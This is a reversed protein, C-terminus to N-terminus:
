SGTKTLGEVESSLQSVLEKDKARLLIRRTREFEPLDKDEDEVLNLKGAVLARQSATLKFFRISLDRLRDMADESDIGAPTESSTPEGGFLLATDAPKQWPPLEIEQEFVDKTNLDHKAIFQGPRSQWIRVHVRVRLKPAENTGLKQLEILNYGPEWGHETRDPHAASAAVRVFDRHLEIRNTHVHGFVQLKSVTALHDAFVDGNALWSYPHHCLVVNISGPISCIQKSAVDVYLGREQDNEGSVITSNVGLFRVSWGDEFPVSRECITQDPPLLSCFFQGAFENYPEISKYLAPGATEDKLLGSIISDVSLASAAKIDRHLTQIIPSQRIRSRVVDHNGPITFVQALTSGCRQCLGDLWKMAFKYEVEAGAFAIDGSVVIMDPAQKLRQCFASADTVLANRLHADPDQTSGVVGDRFHLDSIHLILV